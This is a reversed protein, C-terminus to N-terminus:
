QGGDNSKSGEVHRDSALRLEEGANFSLTVARKNGEVFPQWEGREGVTPMFGEPM